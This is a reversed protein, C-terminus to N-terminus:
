RRGSCTTSRWGPVETPDQMVLYLGAAAREWAPMALVDVGDLTVSGELVEYGPRGM